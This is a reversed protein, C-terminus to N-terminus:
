LFLIIIGSYSYLRRNSIEGGAYFGAMPIDGFVEHILAMEGLPRDNPDSAVRAACSIYLAASPESGPHDKAMRDRLGLLMRSLDAQVTRDDRHVFLMHDGNQVTQAVVLWGKDPDIGVVNRVMYDTQDTGSVPFAVHVEGRFISDTPGVDHPDFFIEKKMKINEPSHGTRKQAMDRLDEAFVDFARRGDLEMIVTDECRTITRVPGLPACGQTLGTMIAVNQSFAVGSLGGRTPGDAFQVADHRASSLGGVIFGGTAQEIRILTQMIDVGQTYDGHVLVLMPDHRDAWPELLDLAARDDLGLSSFVCFDADDIAGVMVALAPQEDYEAGGGGFVGIAATGVWHEIHTVSQLLALINDADAALEDSIYLFGINYANDASLVDKLRELVQRSADRWDAGSAAASAFRDSRYLAMPEDM